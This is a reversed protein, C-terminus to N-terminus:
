RGATRSSVRGLHDPVKLGKETISIRESLLVTVLNYDYPYFWNEGQYTWAGMSAGRISSQCAGDDARHHGAMPRVALIHAIYGQRPSLDYPAGANIAAMTKAYAGSIPTSDVVIKVGFKSEYASCADRL